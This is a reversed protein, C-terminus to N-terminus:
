TFPEAPIDYRARYDAFRDSLETADLGFAEPAYAHGGRHGQPNATAYGALASETTADWAWGLREYLQRATGVPDAVLRGYPVDIWRGADAAADGTRDRFALEREIMTATMEAWHRGLEARRDADSSLGSLVRVLNALSVVVRTPDRHTAVLVADPYEAVLDDLTLLHCPSKLVWRGPHAHGLVALTRHHHAYADAHSQGRLWASYTPIWAMTEYHISHLDGALVTVCETPGEASEYHIGAFEPSVAYLAAMEDRARAMRPDTDETAPDPPPVADFAEWRRLSRNAPDADLLYSLLTTGTRPLGVIFVPREVRTDADPHAALWAEVTFRNALPRTIQEGLVHDGLETLHSEDNLSGVLQELAPRWSADPGAVTDPDVGAAAAARAVLAEGDIM